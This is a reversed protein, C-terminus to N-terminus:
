RDRGGFVGSGGVRVHSDAFYGVVCGFFESSGVNWCPLLSRFRSISCFVFILVTLWGVIGLRGRVEIDCVNFKQEHM